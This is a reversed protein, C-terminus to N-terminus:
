YRFIEALGLSSSHSVEHPPPPHLRILVWLTCVIQTFFPLFKSYGGRKVMKLKLGCSYLHVGVWCNELIREVSLSEHPSVNKVDWNRFKSGGFLQSNLESLRVMQVNLFVRSWGCHSPTPTMTAGTDDGGGGKVRSQLCLFRFEHRVKM